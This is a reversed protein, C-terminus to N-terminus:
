KGAEWAASRARSMNIMIAEKPNVQILPVHKHVWAHCVVDDLRHKQFVKKM